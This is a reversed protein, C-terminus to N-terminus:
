KKLKKEKREIKWPEFVGKPKASDYEFFCISLNPLSWSPEFGVETKGPENIKLDPVTSLEMNKKSHCMGLNKKM